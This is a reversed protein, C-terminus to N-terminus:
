DEIRKMGMERINEGLEDERERKKELQRIVQM